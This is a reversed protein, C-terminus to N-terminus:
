PDISIAIILITMPTVFLDFVLAVGCIGAAAESDAKIIRMSLATLLTLM